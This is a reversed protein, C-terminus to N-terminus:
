RFYADSVLGGGWIKILVLLVGSQAWKKYLWASPGTKAGRGLM